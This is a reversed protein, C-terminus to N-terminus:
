LFWYYVRCKRIILEKSKMLNNVFTLLFNLAKKLTKRTFRM